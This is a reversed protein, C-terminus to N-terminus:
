KKNKWIYWNPSVWIWYGGKGQQSCWAGGGYYGYEYFAGYSSKDDDCRLVQLLKSYKGNVSADKNGLGKQSIETDDKVKKKWIYWYPKVWVWYGGKGKTGCWSGGSWYGYETYNKYTGKDAPCHLMQILHAYKGNVSARSPVQKNRSIDKEKKAPKDHARKNKHKWADRSNKWLFWDPSVWVLYGEPIFHGCLTDGGWVGYDKYAGYRAKDKPCNVVQILDYYKGNASSKSFLGGGAVALASLLFLLGLVLSIGIINKRM